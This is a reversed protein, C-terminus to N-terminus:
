PGDRKPLMYSAYATNVRRSVNIRLGLNSVYLHCNDKKTVKLFFLFIDGSSHSQM